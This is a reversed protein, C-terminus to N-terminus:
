TTTRMSRHADDVSSGLLDGDEGLLASRDLVIELLTDDEGAASILILPLDMELLREIDHQYTLPVLGVSHGKSLLVLRRAHPGETIGIIELRRGGAVPALWEVPLCHPKENLVDGLLTSTEVRTFRLLERVAMATVNFERIWADIGLYCLWDRLSEGQEAEEYSRGIRVALSRSSLGARVLSLAADNNVGHRIMAPLLSHGGHDELLDLLDFPVEAGSRVLQRLLQGFTSPDETDEALESSWELLVGIMWPLFDVFVGSVVDALQEDRYDNEVVASLHKAALDCFEHGALWDHLLAVLDVEVLRRATGRRASYFDTSPATPLALMGELISHGVLVRLSEMPGPTQDSSVDVDALIKALEELRSATSLPLGSRVWRRRRMPETAAYAARAELAVTMWRDRTEPPLQHWALTSQLVHMSEVSYPQARLQECAEMLFWNFGVFDASAGAASVLLDEGQSLHEELNTLDELSAATTLNSRISLEDSTISNGCFDAEPCNRDALVAWGETEALARGARGVANLLRTGTLVRQYTAGDHFGTEAIFVSRVPLNVGETLTTTAVLYNVQGDRVAAEVSEQVDWPLAGHHFAVGSPLTAVLPHENGLKGAVSAILELPVRHDEGVQEALLRAYRVCSARTGALILVSGAKGLHTIMPLNMEYQPTSSEKKRQRGDASVKLELEGVADVFHLSKSARAGRLMLHIQGYLPVTQRTPWPVSRRPAEKAEDWRPEPSYVANLRRPARWDSSLVIQGVADAGTWAAFHALNGATPSITIVRHGSAETATHLLSLCTELIWGRSGDGISQIEDFIFLGYQGLVECADTRLSAQLREPTMVDFRPREGNASGIFRLRSEFTTRVERCLSRTPAVYCVGSEGRALHVAAVAQGLLSKGASTPLAMLARRVSSDTIANTAGRLALLQPPWFMTVKPKGFVFARAVGLPLDPPLVSWVSASGFDDSVHRLHAAIWRSDLDGLSPPSGAGSDFKRKATELHAAVGTQLYRVLSVCGECVLIEAEFVTERLDDTHTGAAIPRRSKLVSESLRAVEGYDGGLLLCGLSLALEGPQHHNAHSLEQWKRFVATANPTLGSRIYGVQCAFLYRKRQVEDACTDIQLDLFHASVQFARRQREAGYISQASAHSAIGHLYWAVNVLDPSRKAGWGAFISIETEYILRTLEETTPLASSEGLATQILEPDLSRDV